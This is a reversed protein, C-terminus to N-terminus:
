PNLEKRVKMARKRFDNSYNGIQEDICIRLENKLEPYKKALKALVLLARSKTTVNTDTSQLLHFLLDIAQGENEVPVGVYLWFSAFTSKYEPHLRECVDFLFPLEAHLKDPNAIGVDSLLWLFRSAVKQDSQLLSSLEKLSLDKEIITSAWNKRLEGTSTAM